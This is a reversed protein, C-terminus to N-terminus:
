EDDDTFLGNDEEDDDIFLGCNEEEFLNGSVSTSVEDDETKNNVRAGVDEYYYNYFKDVDTYIVNILNEFGDITQNGYLMYYKGSKKIEGTRILSLIRDISDDIGFGFKIYSEVTTGTLLKNSKELSLILKNHTYPLDSKSVLMGNEDARYGTKDKKIIIKIDCDYHVIKNGYAKLITGKQMDIKNRFQNVYLIAFNYKKALTSYKNIFLNLPRSEYNTNNNTVEKVGKVSDINTYCKNVLSALSDIVILKFRNLCIFDDLRKSVVDFESEKILILNGEELGDKKNCFAKCGTSNLLEESVSNETDVYLVDYGKKCFQKCVQLAITTKGTSPEAVIQIKSGLEIGGGLIYDLSPIDTEIVKHLKSEQENLKSILESLETEKKSM